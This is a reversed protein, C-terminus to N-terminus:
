DELRIVDAQEIVDAMARAEKAQKEFGSVMRSRVKVSMLWEGGAPVKAHELADADYQDAAARLANALTYRKAVTTFIATM